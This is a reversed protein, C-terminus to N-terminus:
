PPVDLEDEEGKNNYICKYICKYICMKIRDGTHLKIVVSEYALPLNIQKALPKAKWNNSSEEVQTKHVFPNLHTIKSM